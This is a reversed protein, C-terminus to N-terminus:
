RACTAVGHVAVEEQEDDEGEEHRGDERRQHAVIDALLDEGPHPQVQVAFKRPLATKKTDTGSEIELADRSLSRFWTLQVVQRGQGMPPAM